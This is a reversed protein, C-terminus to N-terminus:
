QRLSTESGDGPHAGILEAGAENRHRIVKRTYPKLERIGKGDRLDAFAQASALVDISCLTFLDLLVDTLPTGHGFIFAKAGPSVYPIYQHVTKNSFTASTIFVADCFPLIEAAQEPSYAGPFPNLEFVVQEANGCGLRNVFPRLDGAMGLRQIGALDGQWAGRDYEGHRILLSNIAALGLTTRLLCNDLYLPVIDALAAGRCNKEFRGPGIKKATEWADPPLYALGTGSTTRVALCKPNIACDQIRHEQCEQLASRVVKSYITYPMSVESSIHVAQGLLDQFYGAKCNKLSVV